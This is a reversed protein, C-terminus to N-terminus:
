PCQKQPGWALHGLEEEVFLLFLSLSLLGGMGRAGWWGNVLDKGNEIEKGM